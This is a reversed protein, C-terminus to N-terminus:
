NNKLKNILNNIEEYTFDKNLAEDGEMSINNIDFNANSHTVDNIMKFHDYLPKIGIDKNINKKQPKALEM